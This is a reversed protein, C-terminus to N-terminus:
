LWWLHGSPVIKPIETPRLPDRYGNETWIELCDDFQCVDEEFSNLVNDFDDSYGSFADFLFQIGSRIGCVWTTPVGIYLDIERTGYHYIFDRIWEQHLTVAKMIVDAYVASSQKVDKGSKAVLSENLNWLSIFLNMGLYKQGHYDSVYDGFKSDLAKLYTAVKGWKVHTSETTLLNQQDLMNSANKLLIEQTILQSSEDTVEAKIAPLPMTTITKLIAKPFHKPSGNFLRELALWCPKNLDVIRAAQNTPDEIILKVFRKLSELMIKSEPNNEKTKTSLSQLMNGSNM